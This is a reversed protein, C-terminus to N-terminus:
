PDKFVVVQREPHVRIFVSARFGGEIARLRLSFCCGLVVRRIYPCTKHRGTNSTATKKATKPSM